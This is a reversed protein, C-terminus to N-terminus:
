LSCLWCWLDYFLLFLVMLCYLSVMYLLKSQATTNIKDEELRCHSVEVQNHNTM